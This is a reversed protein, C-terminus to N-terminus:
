EIVRKGIIYLRFLWIRICQLSFRQVGESAMIVGIDSLSLRHLLLFDSFFCERIIGSVLASGFLASIASRLAYSRASAFGPASVREICPEHVAQQGM